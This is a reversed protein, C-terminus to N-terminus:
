VTRALRVVNGFVFDVRRVTLSFGGHKVVDIDVCLARRHCERTQGQKTWGDSGHRM